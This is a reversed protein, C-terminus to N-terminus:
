RTSFVRKTEKLKYLGKVRVIYNMMVSRINSQM